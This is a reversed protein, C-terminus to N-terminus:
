GKITHTEIIDFLRNKNLSLPDIVPIGTNKELEICVDPIDEKKIDEHNITIAIVPKDCLVELLKLQREIPHLPYDPFGDYIRRMPPHQLIIINPRGAALLEFGGPYAPNMLSGQGELIMIDPKSEIYATYIINEIEGSVFDNVISDMIICYQSGQMWATQGTGIMETKYGRKRMGEELIWATTRKGVASDTGLVAIKLSDVKEINGTFFHLDKTKPPKRIDLINTKYERALSAFEEDESLYDHLGSVINLGLKIGDIVAQRDNVSFRGGDPALGIILCEPLHGEKIHSMYAEQIDAYIMIGNNKGDLIYGSDCGKYASDIISLVNYRRTFRTLGHATKGNTTNFAKECYVIANKMEKM